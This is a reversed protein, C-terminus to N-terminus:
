DMKLIRLKYKIQARLSDVGERQAFVKIYLPRLIKFIDEVNKRELKLALTNYKAELRALKMDESKLLGVLKNLKEIEKKTDM